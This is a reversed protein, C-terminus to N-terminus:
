LNPVLRARDIQDYAVTYRHAHAEVCVGAEDASTLIGELKLGPAQLPAVDVLPTALHINVREGVFRLYHQPRTLPRDLGPSSVELTYRGALDSAQALHSEADLVDGVLRSVRSCDDLTIGDAHDIFLRLIRGKPVYEVLILDYNDRALLARIAEDVQRAISQGLGM